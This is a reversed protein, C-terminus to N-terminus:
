EAWRDRRDYADPSAAKLGAGHVPLITDVYKGPPCSPLRSDAAFNAIGHPDSPVSEPPTHPAAISPKTTM